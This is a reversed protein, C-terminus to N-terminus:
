EDEAEFWITIDFIGLLIDLMVCENGETILWGFAFSGITMIGFRMHTLKM